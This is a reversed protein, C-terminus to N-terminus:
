RQLPLGVDFTGNLSGGDLFRLHLDGALRVPGADIVVVSGGAVRAADGDVRLEVVAVDTVGDCGGCEVDDITLTAGTVLTIPNEFVIAVQAGDLSVAIICLDDDLGDGPDCDGAVLQPAGDSVSLQAGAYQGTLQLGENSSTPQRQTDTGACASMAMAAAALALLPRRAVLHEVVPRIATISGDTRV